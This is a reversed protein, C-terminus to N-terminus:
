LTLGNYYTRYFSAVCPLCRFSNPCINRSLSRQQFKEVIARENQESGSDVVIIELEGKEYLTQNVLDELCGQIFRESNYTSVIASVKIKKEDGQHIEEPTKPESITQSMDIKKM